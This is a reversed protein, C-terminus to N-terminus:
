SKAAIHCFLHFICHFELNRFAKIGAHEEKELVGQPGLKARDNGNHRYTQVLM